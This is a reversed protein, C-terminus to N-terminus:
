GVAALIIGATCLFNMKLNFEEQYLRNAWLNCLIMAGVAFCPFLIGKENPLASKTALLLLLTSGFNALGGLSGYLLESGKLRTQNKLFIVGQMLFAAGFQGPMFWADEEERFTWNSLHGDFLHCRAQMFTLVLIQVIFCGLAYKLWTTSPSSAGGGENSLENKSGLFLGFLVMAIGVVQLFSCSYGFDKGLVMYLIIGPFIASANLFAFTLGSPGKKLATSTLVMLSATLLGVLIGISLVFWNMEYHWIDPYLVFSLIFAFFYFILLYGSASKGANDANKRFFLSALAACCAAILSLVLANM